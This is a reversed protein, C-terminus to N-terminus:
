RKFVKMIECQAIMHKGLPGMGAGISVRFGKAFAEDLLPLLPAYAALIRDELTRAYDADTQGPVLQIPSNSIMKENALPDYQADMMSSERKGIRNSLNDREVATCM